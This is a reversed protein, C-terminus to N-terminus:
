KDEIILSLKKVLDTINDSRMKRMINSRHVEITRISLALDNAIVRNTKSQMILDLILKEKSTLSAMCEKTQYSEYLKKSHKAAKELAIKLSNPDIPKQLFDVAGRTLSEVALPVNAHGTMIVVALTSKQQQLIKHIQQGDINPMRIDLLIVGEQNLNVEQLFDQGDAYHITEFGLTPLVFNMADLIALDDDIVFAKM